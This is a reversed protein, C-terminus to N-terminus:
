KLTEFYDCTKGFTKDENPSLNECIDEMRDHGFLGVNYRPTFFNDIALAPIINLFLGFLIWWVVFGERTNQNTINLKDAIIEGVWGGIFICVIATILMLIYPLFPIAFTLIGGIIWLAFVFAGTLLFGTAADM